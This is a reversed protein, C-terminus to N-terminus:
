GTGRRSETATEYKSLRIQENFMKNYKVKHLQEKDPTHLGWGEMERPEKPRPQPTPGPPGATRLTVGAVVGRRGQCAAPPVGRRRPRSTWSSPTPRPGPSSPASGAQPPPHRRRSGDPSTPGSSLDGRPDPVPTRPRDPSLAAERNPRARGAAGRQAGGRETRERPRSAAAAVPRTAGSSSTLAGSTVGRPWTPAPPQLSRLSAAASPRGPPDLLWKRKRDMAKPQKGDTRHSGEGARSEAGKGPPPAAPGDTHPRGHTRAHAWARSRMWRGRGPARGAVGLGLPPQSPPQGGHGGPARSSPAWTLAPPPRRAPASLRRWPRQTDASPRGQVARPESEGADRDAGPGGAPRRRPRAAARTRKPAKVRRQGQKDTDPRTRRKQRM